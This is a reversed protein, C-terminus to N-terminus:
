GVPERWSDTIPDLQASRGLPPLQYMETITRLLRYHDIPENYMGPRVMAGSLLTVIGNDNGHSESEDFTVVLMSNHAVAWAAYGAINGRLWTDGTSMDCDHMDHCLNPILFAVNTLEVYDTPLDSFPRNATRPIDAFNVWPNHKRAYGNQVCGTYGVAPLEEAYGVFTRGAALLRGGLSPTSFPSNVCTDDTVGQTDGSFLALYNPQSPHTEAHANVFNASGAALSNLYPADPSGLIQEANKNELVVVLIHDPVPLVEHNASSASSVGSCGTAALAVVFSLMLAIHALTPRRKM